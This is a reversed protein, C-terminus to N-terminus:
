TAKYGHVTRLPSPALALFVAVSGSRIQMNAEICNRVRCVLKAPCFKTCRFLVGQGENGRADALVSGYSRLLM